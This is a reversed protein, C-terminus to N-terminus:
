INNMNYIWSGSTFTVELFIDVTQQEIDAAYLLFEQNSPSLILFLKVM